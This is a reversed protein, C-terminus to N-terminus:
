QLGAGSAGAAPQESVAQPSAEIEIQYNEVLRQYLNEVAERRRLSFWDRQVDNRVQELAPAQQPVKETIFVLHIGFGSEVPGQWRGTEASELGAAFAAGFLRALDGSRMDSVTGPLTIPDGLSEADPTSGAVQLRALASQADALADQRLDPSFYLQQLSYRAEILYDDQHEQLFAQLEAESPVSLSAVDEALLELKQRLRRRIIVDNDDLGLAIAERYAIEERVYEDLLGKFETPTPPRQWTRSFTNILTDQQGSSIFIEGASRQKSIGSYVLFILGGLALFHILPEKLWKSM